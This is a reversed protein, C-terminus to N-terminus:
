IYKSEIIAGYSLKRFIAKEQLEAITRAGSYTLGSRIGGLLAAVVEETTGQFPVLKEIGEAAVGKKLGDRYLEQAEKSSSGMHKKFGNEWDGAAESTAALLSGLTVCSAGAALAKVIDGSTKFGGDAWIPVGYSKCVPACDMISQLTPMGHGTVYRTSCVSSGGLGVRLADIGEDLLRKAGEATAVNGAAISVHKDQLYRIMNIVADCDGHAVDILLINIGIDLIKDVLPYDERKVGISVSAPFCSRIESVSSLLKEEPLFRHLIGFSGLRAMEKAMGVETVSVM